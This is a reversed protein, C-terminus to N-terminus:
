LKVAAPLFVKTMFKYPKEPDHPNILSLEIKVM